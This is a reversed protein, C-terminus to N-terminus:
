PQEPDHGRMDRVWANIEDISDFAPLCGAFEDFPNAPPQAPRLIARGNDIVFEVRDGQKVGLRRRIEIPVTIQGKSSITSSSAM